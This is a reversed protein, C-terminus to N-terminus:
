CAPADASDGDRANLRQILDRLMLIARAVTITGLESCLGSVDDMTLGVAVRRAAEREADSVAEGAHFPELAYGVDTILHDAFLKKSQEIDRNFSAVGYPLLARLLGEASTCWCCTETEDTVDIV